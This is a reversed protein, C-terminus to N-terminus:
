IGLWFMCNCIAAAVQYISVHLSEATVLRQHKNIVKHRLTLCDKPTVGLQLMETVDPDDDDDDDYKNESFLFL